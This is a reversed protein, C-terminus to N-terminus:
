QIIAITKQNITKQFKTAQFRIENRHNSLVILVILEPLEIPGDISFCNVTIVRSVILLNSVLINLQFRFNSLAHKKLLEFTQLFARWHDCVM